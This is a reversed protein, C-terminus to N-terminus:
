NCPKPNALTGNANLSLKEWTELESPENLDNPKMKYLSIGLDLDKVLNLFTKQYSAASGNAGNAEETYKKRILDSFERWKRDTTKYNDLNLLKTANEIKIAYTYAQDGQYVVLVSVFTADGFDPTINGIGYQNKIQLLSYMDDHSFMPIRVGDNPHSHVTGYQTGHGPFHVHNDEAAPINHAYPGYQPFNNENYFGYGYEFNNGLQSACNLIAIRTSKHNGSINPNNQPATTAPNNILKGLEECNKDHIPDFEEPCDRTCTTTPNTADDGDNSSNNSSGGNNTQGGGSTGGGTSGSGTSSGGTSGSGTSGSGSSSGTSSSGGSSGCNGISAIVDETYAPCNSGDEMLGDPHNMTGSCYGYVIELCEIAKNFIGTVLGEDNIEYKSVKNTLDVFIRNEIDLKEQATINYTVILTKYSGDQRLSLVLNELSDTEITREIPFTYSHYSGDASEMYSAYDTNISFGYESSVVTKNQANNKNKEAIKSLKTLKRKIEKNNELEAKGIKTIKFPSYVKELAQENQKFDDDKQCAVILFSVGFLLIGFKLYNKLKNKKM